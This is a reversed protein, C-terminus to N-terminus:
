RNSILAMDNNGVRQRAILQVKPWGEMAQSADIDRFRLLCFIREPSQLFQLLDEKKELELIPVIGTYFNYPGIVLDGYIGLREGPLIRSKVEESIARASKYPNVLPFVVRTTYFFGAGMMAFILFLVLGHYRLRHLVFISLAVGVLLFAAPLSYSLYPPFKMSVVIPLVIGGLLTFGILGYLPISVWKQPFHELHTFIFDDWLKGVMLSVSPFLPLLYLGRKGKSLTFFLFIVVFWVFLFLFEKRKAMVKRSFGYVVAGPLFLIWPLFDVPFNYFYYYIPRIHSTGKAFRGISHRLLTENFYERGGKMLAPLYWIFVIVLVLLIGWLLRMRRIGKWDKQVLFYILSVLLPLILGVPGKALIALAMGVYFGYILLYRRRGQRIEGEPNDRVWQIFCLLSATTFFTLTADINARTALYAFQYSTTLILGSLFGMRSSYLTKGIFFTLIVTLTGFLASPFRASYSTFGQWLYSSLAILWFFLPPKDSYVSGNSHMLIWDGGNVMERAVQAYRPEDPNWLDWRGLNLFYLVFCFGLLLLIQVWKQPYINSFRKEM